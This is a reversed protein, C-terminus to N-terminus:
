NAQSVGELMQIANQLRELVTPKGIVAMSELLPPSVKRGTVAVRLIGFFQGPKLGLQETLDRLPQEATHPDIEAFGNLLEYAERVAQASASATMYKGV